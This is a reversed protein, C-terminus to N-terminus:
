PRQVHPEKIDRIRAGMLLDIEADDLNVGSSLTGQKCM